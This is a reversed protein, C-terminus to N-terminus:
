KFEKAKHHIENFEVWALNFTILLHKFAVERASVNFILALIM